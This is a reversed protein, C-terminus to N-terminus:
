FLIECIPPCVEVATPINPAPNKKALDPGFNIFLEQFSINIKSKKLCIDNSSRQNEFDLQKLIEWLKKLNATNAKLKKRMFHLKRPKFMGTVRKHRLFRSLKGM